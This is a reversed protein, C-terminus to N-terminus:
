ADSDPSDTGHPINEKLSPSPTFSVDDTTMTFPEVTGDARTITGEIEVVLRPFSPQNSM